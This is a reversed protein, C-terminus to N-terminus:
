RWHDRPLNLGRVSETFPATMLELEAGVQEVIGKAPSSQPHAVLMHLADMMQRWDHPLVGEERQHRLDPDLFAAVQEQVTGYAVPWELSLQSAVRTMEDSPNNLVAEYPIFSRQFHRTYREIELNYQLWLVMGRAHSIGDRRNLSSAVEVPSRFPVVFRPTVKLAEFIKLYLPMLKGMRPDKVGWLGKNTFEQKLLGAIQQHAEKVEDHELWGDPLPLVDQSTLNFAHFVPENLAILPELEFFGKPNDERAPFLTDGLYVGMLNCLRAVTSTGSRHMGLIIVPDLLKNRRFLSM